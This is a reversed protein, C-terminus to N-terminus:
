TSRAKDLLIFPVLMKMFGGLAPLGLVLNSALRRLLTICLNAALETLSFVLFLGVEPHFIGEELKLHKQCDAVGM